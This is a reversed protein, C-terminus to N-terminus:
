LIRRFHYVTFRGEKSDELTGDKVLERLFYGVSDRDIGLENIIRKQSIEPRERGNPVGIVAM